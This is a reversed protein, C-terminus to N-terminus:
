KGSKDEKKKMLINLHEIRKAFDDNTSAEQWVKDAIMCLAAFQNIAKQQMDKDETRVANVLAPLAMTWTPQAMVVVPEKAEEKIEVDNEKKM